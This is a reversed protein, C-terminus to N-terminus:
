LSDNFNEIGEPFSGESLERNKKQCKRRNVNELLAKAKSYDIGKKHDEKDKEPICFYIM